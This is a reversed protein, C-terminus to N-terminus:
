TLLFYIIVLLLSARMFWAFITLIIPNKIRKVPFQLYKDKFIFKWIIFQYAQDKSCIRLVYSPIISFWSSFIIAEDIDEYEIKWYGNIEKSSVVWFGRKHLTWSFSNNLSNKNNKAAKAWLIKVM